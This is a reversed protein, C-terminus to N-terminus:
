AQNSSLFHQLASFTDEIRDLSLDYCKAGERRRETIYGTASLQQLHRSAASQSLDLERIIDPSCQEGQQSLLHLIRLRTDDALAQMRVLLESRSLDSSVSQVGSPQRAGFLLWLVKSSRFKGLYPGLHASPVFIVQEAQELDRVWWEEPDRGLVRRAADLNSLSGLDLQRFAEVCAQLMPTVREWEASLYNSWLMNLHSVILEKMEAPQNLLRHAETEVDEFVHDAPFRQRLYDLFAERSGLLRNLEDSEMHASRNPTPGLPQYTPCSAYADLVRDRLATPQQRALDDLYTPFSPWSRTPEIAYYLGVFVTRHDQWQQPTLATVTQTVWDDLGSLNESKILLLLSNIANQVPELAINLATQASVHILDPEPAM